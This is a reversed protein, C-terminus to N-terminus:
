VPRTDGAQHEAIAAEALADLRGAEADDEIKRDWAAADFEVFWARLAVLESPPLSAIEHELRELPQLQGAEMSLPFQPEERLQRWRLKKM